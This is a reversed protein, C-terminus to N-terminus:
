VAGEGEEEEEKGDEAGKKGMVRRLCTRLVSWYVVLGTVISFLAISLSAAGFKRLTSVDFKTTTNGVTLLAIALILTLVNTIDLLLRVRNLRSSVERIREEPIPPLSTPPMGALGGGLKNRGSPTYRPRPTECGPVALLAASIAASPSPPPKLARRRSESDPGPGDTDWAAEGLPGAESMRVEVYYDLAEFFSESEGEDLSLASSFSAVSM